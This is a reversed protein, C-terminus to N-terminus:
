KPHRIHLKRFALSLSEKSDVAIEGVKWDYYMMLSEYFTDKRVQWDRKLRKLKENTPDVRLRNETDHVWFDSHMFMGQLARSFTDFSVQKTLDRLTANVAQQESDM